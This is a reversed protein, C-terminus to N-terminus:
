LFISLSLFLLLSLCLGGSHTLLHEGCKSVSNVRQKAYAERSDLSLTREVARAAASALNAARAGSGLSPLFAVIAIRKGSPELIWRL